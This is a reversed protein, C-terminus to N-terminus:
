VHGIVLHGFLPKCGVALVRWAWGPQIAEKVSSLKLWKLVLRVYIGFFVMFWEAPLQHTNSERLCWVTTTRKMETSARHEIALVALPSCDTWVPELMPQQGSELM